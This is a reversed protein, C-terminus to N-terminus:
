PQLSGGARVIQQLLAVHFFDRQRIQPRLTEGGEKPREHPLAQGDDLEIHPVAGSQARRQVAVVRHQSSPPPLGVRTSASDSTSGTINGGGTPSSSAKWVPPPM